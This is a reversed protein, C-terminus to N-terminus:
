KRAELIADAYEYAAKACGKPGSSTPDSLLGALAAMAFQDRLTARPEMFTISPRIFDGLNEFATPDIKETNYMMPPHILINFKENQEALQQAIEALFMASSSLWFAINQEATGPHHNEAHRVITERIEKADM